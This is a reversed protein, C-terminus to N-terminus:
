RPPTSRGFDQTAVRGASGWGMVNWMNDLMGRHHDSGNYWGDFSSQPGSHGLAVCEGVPGTFGEARCRSEPSGDKGVHWINGAANCVGSHKTAARVLRPDIFLKKHGLMERYDNLIKIHEKVDPTVDENQLKANYEEVRKNYEIFEKEKEDLAVSKIDIKEGANNIINELEKLTNSPDEGLKKLYEEGIKKISEIENMLQPNNRIVLDRSGNWIQRAKGVWEDVVRQGPNQHGFGGKSEPLYIKPDYIVRIAEKRIDNLQQKLKMLEDLNGMGSIKKKINDVMKNLSSKLGEISDKRIANKTEPSIDPNALIEQLKNFEEDLKKPDATNSLSKVIEKSRKELSKALISAEYDKKTAYNKAVADWIFGGEPVSMLGKLRAILEFGKAQKEGKDSGIYKNIIQIAEPILKNSECFVALSYLENDALNLKEFLKFLEFAPFNQWVILEEVVLYKLSIGKDDAKIPKGETRGIRVIADKLSSDNIADILKRYLRNRFGLEQYRSEFLTLLKPDSKVDPEDLLKKYATEAELFKAQNALNEAQNIKSELANLIKKRNNDAIVSPSYDLATRRAILDMNTVQSEMVSYYKTNKFKEKKDSLYKIAEDYQQCKFLMEAFENITKYDETVRNEVKELKRKAEYIALPDSSDKIFRMLIEIADGYRYEKLASDVDKLMNEYREQLYATRKAVAEGIISDVLYLYEDRKKADSIELILDKLKLCKDIHSRTIQPANEIDNRFEDISKKMELVIKDQRQKIKDVSSSLLNSLLMVAGTILLCAAALYIVTKTIDFSPQLVKDALSPTEKPRVVSQIPKEAEEIIIEVVSIRASGVSVVDGEKLIHPIEEKLLVGNLSTGNLSSLDRIKYGDPNKEIKCHEKSVKSENIDISNDSSRGIAIENDKLEYTKEFNPTKLLLKIMNVSQVPEAVKETKEVYIDKISIEADGVTIVDGKRLVQQIEEKLLLGNFLTGNRSGLDVLRYGNPTIEIKCHKKSIKPDDINIANDDSRGIIFESDKLEYTKESDKTKVSLRIMCKGKFISDKGTNVERYKYTVARNQLRQYIQPWLDIPEFVPEWYKVLKHTNSLLQWEKKCTPCKEIHNTIETSQELDLEGRIYVILKDQVEECKM